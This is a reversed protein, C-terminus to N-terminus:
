NKIENEEVKLAKWQPKKNQKGAQTKRATMKRPLYMETEKEKEWNQKVSRM